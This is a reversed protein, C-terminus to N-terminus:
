LTPRRSNLRQLEDLTNINIFTEAVDSFDVVTTNHMAYWRDIKREGSELYKELSGHLHSPILAFLPQLRQGDHAVAIDAGMKDRAQTLRSVLQGTLLPTDCPVFLANTTNISDLASLFGALPGKFGAMEDSIVPFGLKRYQEFNRNTNIVLQSVQPEIADIVHSILAKNDLEVLGKDKGGMRLARGGAIVVATINLSNTM